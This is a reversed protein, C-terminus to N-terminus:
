QIHMQIPVTQTRTNSVAVRLWGVAPVIIDAKATLTVKCVSGVALCDCGSYGIKAIREAIPAPLMVKVNNAIFGSTPNTIFLDATRGPSLELSNPTTSLSRSPNQIETVDMRVDNTTSGLQVFFYQHVARPIDLKLMCSKGVELHQNLQCSLAGDPGVYTRDVNVNAPISSLLLDNPGSTRNVVKYISVAPVVVPTVMESAEVVPTIFQSDHSAQAAGSVFFLSVILFLIKSGRLRKRM